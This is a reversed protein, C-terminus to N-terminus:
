SEYHNEIIKKITETSYKKKLSEIFEPEVQSSFSILGSLHSYDEKKLDGCKFKHVLHKIYRKKERGLSIKNENSLTIGTVHRNHAKSSFVTKENNVSIKGNFIDALLIKTINPISFLINKKNTSFTLDDAYRTYKVDLDTCKKQLHNDFEYMCFNSIKPSSPAGVSLVLNNLSEEWFLLSTILIKDIREPLPATKKWVDWFIEPTISNFFNNFDMKLLYTSNKHVTANDIINRGNRYAYACDHVPVDLSDIFLRQLRKVNKKPQAILRRGHTRKPIYYKKYTRPASSVVSLVDARNLNSKETLFSIVDM